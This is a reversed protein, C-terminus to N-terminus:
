IGGKVDYSFIHAKSSHIISLIIYIIKVYILIKKKTQKNVTKTSAPKEFYRLYEHKICCFKAATNKKLFIREHIFKIVLKLCKLLYKNNCTKTRLLYIKHHIVNM